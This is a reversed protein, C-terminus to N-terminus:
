SDLRKRPAFAFFGALFAAPWVPCGGGARKELSPALALEHPWNGLLVASIPPLGGNSQVLYFVPGM